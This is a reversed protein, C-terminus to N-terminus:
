IIASLMSNSLSSAQDLTFLFCSRLLSGQLAAVTLHSPAALSQDTAHLSGKENSQLYAM